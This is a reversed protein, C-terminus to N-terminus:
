VLYSLKNSNRVKHAIKYDILIVREGEWNNWFSKRKHWFCSITHSLFEWQIGYSIWRSSGDPFWVPFDFSLITINCFEKSTGVPIRTLPGFPFKGYQSSYLFITGLSILPKCLVKNNRLHCTTPPFIRSITM